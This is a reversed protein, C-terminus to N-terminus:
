SMNRWFPSSAIHPIGRLTNSSAMNRSGSMNEQFPLHFSYRSQLFIHPMVFLRNTVCEGGGLGFSKVPYEASLHYFLGSVLRKGRELLGHAKVCAETLGRIWEEPETGVPIKCPNFHVPNNETDALRYFFDNIEKNADAAREFLGNEDVIVARLYPDNVNEKAM